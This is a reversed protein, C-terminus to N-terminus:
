ARWKSLIQADEVTDTQSALWYGNQTLWFLYAERNSFAGDWSPVPGAQGHVDVTCGLVAHRGQSDILPYTHVSPYFYDDYEGAEIKAILQRAYDVREADTVSEHEEKAVMARFEGDNFQLDALYDIKLAMEDGLDAILADWGDVTLWEYLRESDAPEPGEGWAHAVLADIVPQLDQPPRLRERTIREYDNM